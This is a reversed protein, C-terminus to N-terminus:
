SLRQHNTNIVPIRRARPAPQGLHWQGCERCCYHTMPKSYANRSRKAIRKALARTLQAKGTPCSMGDGSNRCGRM